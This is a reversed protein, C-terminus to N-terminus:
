ALRQKSPRPANADSPQHSGAGAGASSQRPLALLADLFPGLDPLAAEDLELRKGQEAAWRQKDAIAESMIPAFGAEEVTRAAERMEESRRRGHILARSIVYRALGPWDPHALTDALSALVQREVGYSRAALMCETTLAELGKIMISRCMKVSSAGGIEEGFLELRMAFPEMAAIWSRAEPGGVLMPSRLGRGAVSTMVAAEVYRGGLGEVIRAAERKTGPSVSNVDVVYPGHALGGALSTVAEIVSGATVAVFVMQAKAAAEHASACLEVHGIAEARLRAAEAVDYGIIKGAGAERLDRAFIAGVEGLGIIAFERM